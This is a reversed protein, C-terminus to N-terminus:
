QWDGYWTCSYSMGKLILSSFKSVCSEQIITKLNNFTELVFINIYSKPFGLYLDFLIIELIHFTLCDIIKFNSVVVIQANNRYIPIFVQLSQSIYWNLPSMWLGCTRKLKLRYRYRM